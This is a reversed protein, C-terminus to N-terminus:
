VCIARGQYATCNIYKSYGNHIKHNPQCVFVFDLSVTVQFFVKIYFNCFEFGCFLRSITYGCFEISEYIFTVVTNSNNYSLPVVGRARLILYCWQSKVVRGKLYDQLILYCWQSKVVRGKLNDQLILYCWQSKVLVNQLEFLVSFM